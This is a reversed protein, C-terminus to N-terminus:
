CNNDYTYRGEKKNQFVVLSDRQEIIKCLDENMM